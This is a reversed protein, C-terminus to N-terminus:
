EEEFVETTEISNGALDELLADDDIEAFKKLAEAENEAEITIGATAMYCVTYKKM